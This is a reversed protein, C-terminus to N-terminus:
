TIIKKIFGQAAKIGSVNISHDLHEVAHSDFPIQQQKLLKEAELFNEFPVVSDMKGHILKINPKHITKQGLM